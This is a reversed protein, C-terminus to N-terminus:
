ETESDEITFHKQILIAADNIDMEADKTGRRPYAIRLLISAMEVITEKADSFAWQKASDSQSHAMENPRCNAWQKVKRKRYLNKYLFPM